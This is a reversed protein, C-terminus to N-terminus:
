DRSRSEDLTQGPIGGSLRASDAARQLEALNSRIAKAAQARSWSWARWDENHYSLLIRNAVKCRDSPNLWPLADILTPVVDAGLSGTYDADFRRGSQARSVNVRAIFKNPNIAHLTAVLLFGAILAGFAFAERRDRLVTLAFWVLVVALWGMFATPYLRAETLGYEDMYFRMRQVASAMVVFLLAVQVGALSKFIRKARWTQPRLLWHTGLLLPLSLASVAVLEFFGHRAYEAYSLGSSVSVLSAGGFLYRIQVIVFVLFLADLSGLVMSSETIGLFGHWAEKTEGPSLKALAMAPGSLIGRERGLILGHLYGAAIWFCFTTVTLHLVINAPSIHIVRKVLGAFVDDAAMFLGGFIVSLPVALVLGRVVALTRGGVTGERVEKWDVDQILAMLTGIATTLMTLGAALGYGLLSSKRVAGGQARWLWLSLVVGICLVNLLALVISDRGLFAAGFVLLPVSLWYGGSKVAEPRRRGLALIAAGLAATWLFANLGWPFQRLLLDGLVGLIVAFGLLRLGLGTKETM